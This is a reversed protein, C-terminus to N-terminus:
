GNNKEKLKNLMEAQMSKTDFAAASGVLGDAQTRIIDEIFKIKDEDSMIDPLNSYLDTFINVSFETLADVIKQYQEKCYAELQEKVKNDM